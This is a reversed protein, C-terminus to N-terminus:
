IVEEINGLKFPHRNPKNTLEEEAAARSPFQFARNRDRTGFAFPSQDGAFYYKEEKTREENTITSTIIFKSM